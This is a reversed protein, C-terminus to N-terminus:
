LKRIIPELYFAFYVSTFNTILAVIIDENTINIVDNYRLIIFTIYLFLSEVLVVLFNSLHTNM